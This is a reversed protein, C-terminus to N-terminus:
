SVAFIRVTGLSFVRTYCSLRLLYLTLLKFQLMLKSACTMAIIFLQLTNQCNGFLKSKVSVPM